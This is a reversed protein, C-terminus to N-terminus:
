RSAASRRCCRRSHHQRAGPVHELEVFVVGSAVFSWAVIHLYEVGIAIVDPDHSFVSMLQAAFTYCVIASVVM